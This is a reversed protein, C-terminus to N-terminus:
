EVYFLIVYSHVIQDGGSGNNWWQHLYIGDGKEFVWAFGEPAFVTMEKVRDEWLAIGDAPVAVLGKGMVELAQTSMVGETLGLAQSSLESIVEVVAGEALFGSFAHGTRIQFGIIQRREQMIYQYTDTGTTGTAKTQAVSDIVFSQIDELKKM